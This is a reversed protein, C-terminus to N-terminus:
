CDEVIGAEKAEYKADDMLKTVVCKDCEEIKVDRHSDCYNCLQERSEVLKEYKKEDMKENGKLMHKVTTVVGIIGITITMILLAFMFIEM